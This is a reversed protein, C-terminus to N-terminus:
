ITAIFIIQFRNFSYQSREKELERFHVCNRFWTSSGGMVLDKFTGHSAFGPLASFIYIVGATHVDLVGNSAAPYNIM